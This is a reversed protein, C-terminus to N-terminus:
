WQRALLRESLEFITKKYISHEQNEPFLKKLNQFAKQTEKQAIQKAYDQAGCSNLIDALEAVRKPSLNNEKWLSKFEPCHELGYIVPLTKKKALIDSASSKGTVAPDGWIGLIDDMIQFAIGLSLGYDRLLNLVIVEKGAILGGLEASFAILAGTKGKIMELYTELSIDQNGEFAIDLYQGQTLQFCVQNFRRSAKLAIRAGCTQELNLIALQALCFLADGANIAQPIGWIRWLTQRGHRLPSQDEIDDHVLTFNHLYEIAVPGPMASELKAGFALAFLLTILPRIRKGSGIEDEWGMHYTMMNRLTQSNGFDQNKLHAQLNSEILPILEEQLTDLSM